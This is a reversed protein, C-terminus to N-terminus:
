SSSGCRGDRRVGERGLWTVMGVVAGTFPEVAEGAMLWPVVGLMAGPGAAGLLAGLHVAAAPSVRCVAVNMNVSPSLRVHSRPL